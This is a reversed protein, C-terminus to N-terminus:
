PDSQLAIHNIQFCQKFYMKNFIEIKLSISKRILYGIINLINANPMHMSVNSIKVSAQM